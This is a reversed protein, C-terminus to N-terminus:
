FKYDLDYNMDGNDAIYFIAGRRKNNIVGSARITFQTVDSHDKYFGILAQGDAYFKKDFIWWNLELEATAKYKFGIFRNTFTGEQEIKNKAPIDVKLNHSDFKIGKKVVVSIGTVDADQLGLLANSYTFNGLKITNEQVTFLGLVKISASGEFCFNNIRCTFKADPIGVLSMDGVYKKLKPIVGSVKYADVAMGGTLAWASVEEANNNVVTDAMGTVGLSFDSFTLPIEGIIKTFDRDLKLQFGDLKLGTKWQLAAGVYTDVVCWPLKINFELGYKDTLTDIHVGFSKTQMNAKTGLLLVGIPPQEDLTMLDINCKFDINQATVTATANFEVEFPSPGKDKVVSVFFDQLPLETAGSDVEVTLRDPYLRMVPHYLNVLELMRMAGTTTPTTPYDTGYAVANYIVLEGFKPIGQTMGMDRLFKAYGKATASDQFDVYSGVNDVLTLQADDVQGRLTIAGCFNLWDNMTVFSSLEIRDDYEDINFAKFIYGGFRVEDPEGEVVTLEKLFIAKRQNLTVEVDYEGVAIFSPLSMRFKNESIYTASLNYTRDGILKLSMSDTKKFGSGNIDVDIISKQKYVLRKALGYVAVSDDFPVASNEADEDSVSYLASDSVNKDELSVIVERDQSTLTDKATFTIKYQNDLTGHIFGYIEELQSDSPSYIMQGGTSLAISSLYDYNISSGMGIVYIMYGKALAVNGIQSEIEAYDHSGGDNGDTMLIIVQNADSDYSVNSLVSTVTGFINTGGYAGMGNIADALGQETAAGLPISTIISDDFTYFGITEKENSDELFKNVANQLSGVSGSMSGSNDCILVINAKEYEVKEIKYNTIDYNCDKLRVLNMLERETLFEDSLQVKLVVEEFNSPDVSNITVAASAKITYEEVTEAQEAEKEPNRVIEGVGPLIYSNQVATNANQTVNKISEAGGDGSIADALNNMAQTYEPDDSSPATVLADSFHQNRSIDNENEDAIKALSMYIKSAKKYNRQNEAEESLEKELTFLVEDKNYAKLSEIQEDLKILEENTLEDELEDRIVELQKVLASIGDIDEIDLAKAADSRSIKGNLYMDLVIMYETCSAYEDLAEVAGEFDGKLLLAKLRAERFVDLKNMTKDKKHDDLEDIVTDLEVENVFDNAVYDNYVKDAKAVWEAAPKDSKGLKKDDLAVIVLEEAGGDELKVIEEEKYDFPAEYGAEKLEDILVSDYRRFSVIKEVAKAEEPLKDGYLKKYGALAADYRRDFVAIRSTMLTCEDDYGYEDAYETVIREASDTDGIRIFAYAADMYDERSLSAATKVAADDDEEGTLAVVGMVTCFVFAVTVAATLTIYAMKKMKRAFLLIFAVIVAPTLGLAM